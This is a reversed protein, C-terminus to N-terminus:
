SAIQKKRRLAEARSYIERLYTMQEEVVAAAEDPERREIAQYLREHQAIIEKRESFRLSVLNAIPQLAEIVGVMVLRLVRNKTAQVLAHHFRVDSGCFDVDPLGAEKQILLERAMVALDQADRLQAALRSCVMELQQRADAIEKLNFEGMSTLLTTSVALERAVDRWSPQSVFSGGSPGRRSRILNQAALRKLAGRITPRSVNFRTALEDETPLRDNVKFHGSVIAERVSEAIQASLNETVLSKYVIKETM